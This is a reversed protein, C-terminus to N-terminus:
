GNQYFMFFIISAWVSIVCLVISACSTEYLYYIDYLFNDFLRNKTYELGLEPYSDQMMFAFSVWIAKHILRGHLVDVIWINKTSEKEKKRKEHEGFHIKQQLPIGTRM